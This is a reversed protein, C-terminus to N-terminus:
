SASSEAEDKTRGSRWIARIVAAAILLGGPSLLVPGLYPSRWLIGFLSRPGLHFFYSSRLAGSPLVNGILSLMATMAALALPMLLILAVGFLAMGANSQALWRGLDCAAGIIGRRRSM